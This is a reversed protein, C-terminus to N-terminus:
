VRESAEHWGGGAARVRGIPEGDVTVTGGTPRELYNICRLLPPKGSGPAGIIVVTEGKAVELAVDRLVCKGAFAKTLGEVGPVRRSRNSMAGADAARDLAVALVADQDPCLLVARAAPLDRVARLPGLHDGPRRPDARLRLDGVVALHEEDHQHARQHA